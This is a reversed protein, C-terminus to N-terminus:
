GAALVAPRHALRRDRRDCRRIPKQAPQAIAGRVDASTKSRLECGPMQVVTGDRKVTPDPCLLLLLVPTAEPIAFYLFSICILVVIIRLSNTSSTFNFFESNGLHSRRLNSCTSIAQSKLRYLHM